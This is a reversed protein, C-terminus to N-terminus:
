VIEEILDDSSYRDYHREFGSAMYVSQPISGKYDYRLNEDYSKIFSKVVKEKYVKTYKSWYKGM